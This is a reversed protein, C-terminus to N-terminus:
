FWEYGTNALRVTNNAAINGFNVKGFVGFIKNSFYINTFFSETTEKGSSM